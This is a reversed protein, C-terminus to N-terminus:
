FISKLELQWGPLLPEADLISDEGLDVAAVDPRFVTLKRTRPNLEWVIQTGAALWRGVKDAVESARDGPSRVELVLDPVVDLFKEPVEPSMRERAVFAFDPALITLPNHSVYFGTEAGFCQGLNNRRVFVNVETSLDITLRGHEAGTPPMAKLEGDLLEYRYGDQSLEWLEEETAYNPAIAIAQM